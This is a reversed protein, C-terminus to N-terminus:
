HIKIHLCKLGVKIGFVRKNKKLKRLSLYKFDKNTQLEILFIHRQPRKWAKSQEVRSYCLM